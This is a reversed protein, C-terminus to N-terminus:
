DWKSILMYNNFSVANIMYTGILRGVKMKSPLFAMLCAGLIAPLTLAVINLARTNTKGAVYTSSLICIVSVVGSPISLLATQESTFGFSFRISILEVGTM